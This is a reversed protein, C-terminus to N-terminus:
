RRGAARGVIADRRELLARVRRRDVIGDLASELEDQTLSQLQEIWAATLTLEVNRLHEPLDNSAPFSADHGLLLLQFNDTSYRLRDLTRGTNGILSDFVYMAAFQDNLPCWAGAGLRETQRQEETISRPPVYQLTGADGDFERAVTVPVMDLGIRRDLWYAALDPQLNRGANPTFVASLELEGTRLGVLTWRSDAAEQSTVIEATALFEELQESTMGDPRRGVERVQPEVPRPEAADEYIARVTEGEVILAAARGGYYDRLMGTDIRYIGGDLRSHISADRTPTHGIVLHEAGALRLTAALRDLEILPSCAVNGRYWTPSATDFAFATNLDAVINAATQTAGPWVADGATVRESWAALLAPHDYFNDGPSLVGENNLVRLAIAYSRLQEQLTANLEEAVLDQSAQALGGHVFAWDNIVVLFPQDLLWAGYRGEPAFAERHAFFGPPYRQDFEARPAATDNADLGSM